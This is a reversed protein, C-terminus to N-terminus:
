SKLRHVAVHLSFSSFDHKSHVNSALQTCRTLSTRLAFHEWIGRLIKM